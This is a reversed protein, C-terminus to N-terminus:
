SKPGIWHARPCSRALVSWRRAGRSLPGVGIARTQSRPQLIEAQRTGMQIQVSSNSNRSKTSEHPTANETSVTMILETERETYREEQTFNFRYRMRKSLLIGIHKTYSHAHIRTHTLTHTCINIYTIRIRIHTYAHPTYQTRKRPIRIHTYSHTHTLTQAYIYTCAYMDVYVCVYGSAHCM